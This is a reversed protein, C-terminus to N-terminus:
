AQGLAKEMWLLVRKMLAQQSFTELMRDRMSGVIARRDEDDQLFRELRGALEAQTAFTVRDLEPWLRSSARIVSSERAAKMCELYVPTINIPQHPDVGRMRRVAIWEEALSAPLDECCIADGPRLNRECVLDYIRLKVSSEFDDAHRRILFFGGAALGDLVRQHFAHNCGAHLNVKAARFARGLESGHRVFGRAYRSFRSHANWGSGYLHFRHGTQEAWTAAWEITQHRLMRDVLPRVFDAALVTREEAGLDIGVAREMTRLFYELDLGGNLASRETLAVLEEYLADFLKRYRPNSQCFEQHIAEPTRSHTTAFAVDCSFRPDEKETPGCLGSNDPVDGAPFLAAPDTAMECSMFREAPYGCRQVLEDRCFGMCFDLPGMAEGTTRRFLAPMRDQVWTLVPVEDILGRHQGQRTHDIILILDPEFDGVAALMTRPTICSHNDPEILLRTACGNAQLARLADRMSYQLVTTFRSTLGLVRLPPGEGGLAAAYRRHWWSRDRGHYQTSLSDRLAVRKSEDRAALKRMRRQVPEGDHPAWLLARILTGPPVTSTEAEVLREFQDCADPGCCLRVRKDALPARWDSLHLAVAVGLLSPEIQYILTTAGLFTNATAAYLWPLHYGLGVGEIVLPALFQNKFKAAQAEASPRPVHNGFMPRWGGDRGGRRDFVQYADDKTVHLELHPREAAWVSAVQDAWVHRQRLVAMNADFLSRLGGWPVHGDSAVSKLSRLMEAFDSHSRAEASLGEAFAAARCLLGREALRRMLLLRLGDHDAGQALAASALTVFRDVDGTRGM